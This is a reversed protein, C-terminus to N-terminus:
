YRVLDGVLFQVQAIGDFIDRLQLQQLIERGNTRSVSLYALISSAVHTTRTHMGATRNDATVINGSQTGTLVASTLFRTFLHEDGLIFTRYNFIGSQNLHSGPVSFM